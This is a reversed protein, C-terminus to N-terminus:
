SQLNVHCVKEAQKLKRLVIKAESQVDVTKPCVYLFLRATGTRGYRTARGARQRVTASTYGRDLSHVYQLDPLDIGREAASTAVIVQPNSALVKIRKKQSMSGEILTWGHRTALIQAVTAFSTFVISKGPNEKMKSLLASEKSSPIGVGLAEPMQVIQRCRVNLVAQSSMLLTGKSTELISSEVMDEYCKRHEPTLDVIVEEAILEEPADPNVMEHMLPKLLSALYAEDRIGTIQNPVNPNGHLLERNSFDTWNRWPPVDRLWMVPFFIDRLGNRLSTGTMLLRHRPQLTLLRRNRKSASGTLRDAEDVCIIGWPIRRLTEWRNGSLSEIIDFTVKGELGYEKFKSVQEKLATKTTLYLAPAPYKKLSRRFCECAFFTKGHGVNSQLFMKGGYLVFADAATIQCPLLKVSM